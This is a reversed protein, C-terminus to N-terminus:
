RGVSLFNLGSDCEKGGLRVLDAELFLLKLQIVDFLKLESTLLALLRVEDLLDEVDTLHRLGHNEQVCLAVGIAKILHHTAFAELTTDDETIHM